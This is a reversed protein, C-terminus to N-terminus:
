KLEIPPLINEGEVVIATLGSRQPNGYRGKLRDPPRYDGSTNGSPKERWVIGLRYEGAPAGDEEGFCRVRFNGAGDVTAQPTPLLQGRLQESTYFFIVRAGTAPQGKFTVKGSTPYTEVANEEASCGAFIVAVVFSLWALGASCTFGKTWRM